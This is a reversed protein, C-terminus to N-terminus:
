PRFISGATGYYNGLAPDAPDSDFSAPHNRYNWPLPVAGASPLPPLYDARKADNWWAGGPGYVWAFRAQPLAYLFHLLQDSFEISSYRASKDTQSQGLPHAGLAFNTAVPWDRQRPLSAAQKDVWASVEDVSATMSYTRESGVIIHGAGQVSALGYFFDAYYEYRSKDVNGFATEPILMLILGPYASLLAEMAQQGRQRVKAATEKRSRGSDRHYSLISCDPGSYPEIDMVIGVLGTDEAFQASTSLGSLVRAWAADNFVDRYGMKDDGAYYEACKLFNDTVGAARLSDVARKMTPADAAQYANSTFDFPPYGQDFMFGRFGRQEWDAATAAAYLPNIPSFLLLKTTGRQPESPDITQSVALAAQEEARGSLGGSLRFAIVMATLALASLILIAAVSSRGRPMVQVTTEASPLSRGM